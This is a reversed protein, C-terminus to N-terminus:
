AVHRVDGAATTAITITIRTGGTEPRLVSLSGHVEHVLRRVIWLGLGAEGPRPAPAAERQELYQIRAPDLGPGDDSVTIRIADAEVDASLAVRGGPTSAHCANLLLNLVAQRVAGARVPVDAALRNDWALTLARREIEPRVLLSLDDIDAPKLPRESAEARHTVLTSRVVDRIGSLGRELLSVARLRVSADAGHRKLTDISNFLGGLPNNIEHAMGSALRGLSALREEEALRVALTQREQMAHVLANYRRFLQGFESREPGLRAAAIPQAESAVGQHLHRTLIHVPRLIRGVFFYGVAALGVAILTNTGILAWLVVRREQFLAAVDFQAYIAGITLGQYALVRRAGALERAEDLWTDNGAAFRARASTPIQSYSPTAKPDSSALVMDENNAVLTGVPKLGRYLARTRDLIDFSEWVDGRLVAPILSSSLGDLYSATLEEFHRKQIEALRSLVEKTIVGSVAIMLVVVLAPVKATVPWEWPRWSLRRM